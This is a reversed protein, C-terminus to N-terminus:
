ACSMVTDHTMNASRTYPDKRKCTSSTKQTVVHVEEGSIATNNIVCLMFVKNNLNILYIFACIYVNSCVFKCLVVRAKM